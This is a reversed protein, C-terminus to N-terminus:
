NSSGEIEGAEDSVAQAVRINRINWRRPDVRVATFSQLPHSPSPNQCSCNSGREEREELTDMLLPRVTRTTSMLLTAASPTTPM